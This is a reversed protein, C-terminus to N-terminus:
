KEEEMLELIEDAREKPLEEVVDVVQEPPMRDLVRSVEVEPLSGVLERLTPDDLEALVEGAHQPSLLRFLRVQDDRPLERIVRSVDAPHADESRFLTTYPFLPPSPPPPILFLSSLPPIYPAPTSSHR